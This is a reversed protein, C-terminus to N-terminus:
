VDIITWAGLYIRLPGPASSLLDALLETFTKNEMSSFFQGLFSYGVEGVIYGLVVVSLVIIVTRMSSSALAFMFSFALLSAVLFRATLTFPYARLGEPLDLGVTAVLGGVLLFAGPLLIVAGGAGFKTMVQAWRPQPLALSYIHGGAHDWQWSSLAVSFGLAVSLLPYLPLWLNQAALDIGGGSATVSQVTVLPLGFAVLTLPLLILGGAQWQLFLARKFM